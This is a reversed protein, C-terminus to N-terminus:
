GGASRSDDLYCELEIHRYFQDIKKLLPLEEAAALNRAIVSPSELRFSHEVLAGM